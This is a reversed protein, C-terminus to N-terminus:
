DKDGVSGRFRRRVSVESVSVRRHGVRVDRCICAVVGDEVM